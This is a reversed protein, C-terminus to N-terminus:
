KPGPDVPPIPSVPGTPYQVYNSVPGIGGENFARVHYTVRVDDRLRAPDTFTTGTINVLREWAGAGTKKFVSYGTSGQMPSWNLVVRKSSNLSLSLDTIAAPTRVMTAYNSVASLGFSNVARVHYSVRTGAAPMNTDTFSTVNAGVTAIQFWAGNNDKRYVRYSQEFGVDNWTITANAASQQVKVNTPAAPADLEGQANSLRMEVFNAWDSTTGDGADNAVLRLQNVRQVNLNFPKAADGHTMVGSNFIEVGDALISFIVTGPVGSIGLAQDDLGVAGALRRSSLDSINFTLDSNAHTGIGRAYTVGAITLPGGDNPATTPGVNQNIGVPGWFTTSGPEIPLDSLYTLAFLQRPELTQLVATSVAKTSNRANSRSRHWFMM